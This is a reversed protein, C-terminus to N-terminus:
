HATHEARLSPLHRSIDIALERRFSGADHTPAGDMFHRAPRSDAWLWLDTSNLGLGNAVELLAADTDMGQNRELHGLYGFGNSNDEAQQLDAATLTM